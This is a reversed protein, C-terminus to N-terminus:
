NEAWILRDKTPLSSLPLSIIAEAEYPLFEERVRDEIWCRNEEDILACVRSNNPFNKQPSVVRSSHMDPLWKDGRILVSKGDSIRWKSGLRVVKRAQLISQWAYSGRENVGEELITCNPFYKAKFVKYFLSDKNHLLRWVQNGLMALNFNEIDKFGLGGQSKPKCLKKWGVWHIKRVEGKFGWWFKRILSEIDKCLSKPLKFCAMSYTPMARLVVKILVERGGQSLLREKWGQIKQWIQERIYSFSQKKGRGVFSPLGLYKEYNTTAAVGLLNKIEEQMHPDTNPSFFLQPKGRNIQQGSAEEYQKLIELVNSCEQQNALCFLLSDDAFFM